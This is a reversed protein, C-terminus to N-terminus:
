AFLAMQGKALPDALGQVQVLDWFHRNDLKRYNMWIAADEPLRLDFHWALWEEDLGEVYRPNESRPTRLASLEHVTAEDYDSMGSVATKKLYLDATLSVSAVQADSILPAHEVLRRIASIYTEAKCVRAQWRLCAGECEAAARVVQSMVDCQDGFFAATWDRAARNRSDFVNSAGSLELVLYQDRYFKFGDAPYAARLGDIPFRIVQAAYVIHSSM